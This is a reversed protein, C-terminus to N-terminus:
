KGIETLITKWRSTYTHDRKTREHGRLRIAEREEDHSLYHDIIIKLQDFNGFDYTAIEQNPGSDAHFLKELGEIKPHVIFGGRGTTEFIRDSLYYPYDFGKCLTDGIVIKSDRYLRNLAAGRTTPIEGDGGVHTFREGYTSKLWDILQPRYPWEPHYGKSGVFIIDRTQGNDVYMQCEPEFVGAPLYHGKVSTNENFWDAMLKDVTFFHEIHQYFSDAALDKQRELGLWLDLHYTLSPIGAGKLYDLVAVMNGETEWGHTHVWVFLDSSIAVQMVDKANVRGEQLAIVEHGLARLTAAHHNESSYSVGFNGLFVINM